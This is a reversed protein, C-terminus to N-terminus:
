SASRGPDAPEAPRPWRGGPRSARGARRPARRQGAAQHGLEGVPDLDVEDFREEARAERRVGAAGDHAPHGLHRGGIRVPRRMLVLPDGVRRSAASSSSGEAPPRAVAPAGTVLCALQEDRERARPRTRPRRAQAGTRAAAATRRPRRPAPRPSRTARRGPAPCRGARRRPAPGRRDGQLARQQRDACGRIVPTASPAASGARGGPCRLRRRSTRRSGATRRAPPRRSRRRSPGRGAPPPPSPGAGSRRVCAPRGPGGRGLVDSRCRSSRACPM